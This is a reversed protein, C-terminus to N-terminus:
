LEEIKTIFEIPNLVNIEVSAKMKRILGDDTTLFYDCKAEIACAIHLADKAKIGRRTINEAIIVVEDTEEIDLASLQRWKAITNKREFFPNAANEFDLIYSWVLEIKQAKIVAQIHLKADTEIKVRISSQEDFPRNFCCNDLYIRM